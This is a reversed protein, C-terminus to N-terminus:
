RNLLYSERWSKWFQKLYKNGKKWTELSKQTMTMEENQYDQDNPDNKEYENTLAPTRNKTNLSLFHM